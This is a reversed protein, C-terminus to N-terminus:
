QMSHRLWSCPGAAPPIASGRAVLASSYRSCNRWWIACYSAGFSLTVTTPHCIPRTLEDEDCDPQFQTEDLHLKVLSVAAGGAWYQTNVWYRQEFTGKEPDAYDLPTTMTQPDVATENQELEPCVLSVLRGGRARHPVPCQWAHAVVCVYAFVCLASIALRMRATIEEPHALALARGLRSRGLNVNGGMMLSVVGPTYETVSAFCAVGLCRQRASQPCPTPPDSM